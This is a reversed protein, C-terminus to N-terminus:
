NTRKAAPVFSLAIIGILACVFLSVTWQPRLDTLIAWVVVFLLQLTGIGIRRGREDNRLKLWIAFRSAFVVAMLIAVAFM